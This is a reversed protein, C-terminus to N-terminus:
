INRQAPPPLPATQQRCRLMKRVAKRMDKNRGYNLLPNLLGNLTMLLFYFPQFPVLTQFGMAVLVVPSIVAPLVSFLFCLVILSVVRTLQRERDSRRNPLNRCFSRTHLRNALWFKAYNFIIMSISIIYFMVLIIFAFTRNSSDVKICVYTLFATAVSAIWSLVAGKIARSRTSHNRYWHPCCMAQYRDRSIMTLNSLTAVYCLIGVCTEEIGHPQCLHPDSLDYIEQILVYLAWILDSISLSCLMLLAPHQLSKTRSVATLVLANCVLSMVNLFAGFPRVFHNTIDRVQHQVEDPLNPILCAQYPFHNSNSSDNVAIMKRFFLLFLIPRTLLNTKNSCSNAHIFEEFDDIGRALM